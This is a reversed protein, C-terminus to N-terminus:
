YDYNSFDKIEEKDSIYKKHDVGFIEGVMIISKMLGYLITSMWFIIALGDIM